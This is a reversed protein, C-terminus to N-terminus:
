AIIYPNSTESNMLVVVGVQYEPTWMQSTLYGGGAGGHQLLTGSHLPESMIGLGDGGVQGEVPFQPTYMEKLLDERIIQKGDIKGGALHFSIHKAMDKVTSYMGGSPLLITGVSRINDGSHGKAVSPHNAAVKPNFTSSTMGLPRFLE